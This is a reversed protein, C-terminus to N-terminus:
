FPYGVSFTLNYYNYGNPYETKLDESVTEMDKNFWVWKTGTSIEPDLAKFGLDLRLVFFSFDFRVGTGAGVAIADVFNKASLINLENASESNLTWINGADIFFAGNMYWFLHFRHEYNLEFKMDGQRYSTEYTGSNDLKRKPGITRIEWARMSNAGGGYYQKISPTVESNGYPVICGAFFRFISTNKKNIILYYRLDIEAKTYQAFRTGFMKYYGLGATDVNFTNNISSLVNGAFELKGSLYFSNNLRREKKNFYTYTYSSSSILNDQYSNRFYENKSIYNNFRDSKNKYQVGSLDIITLAHSSKKQSRWKYGYSASARPSRYDPTQVFYYGATAVTYPRYKEDFREMKFPLVFRPLELEVDAGYEQNYFFTENDTSLERNVEQSTKFRVSLAEAGHFINRHRYTLNIGAGLDGSTNTGQLNLSIQQLTFQSIQIHCDLLQRSSDTQPPSTYKITVQKFLKNESLYRKTLKTNKNNYEEGKKIKNFRLIMGKKLNDNSFLFIEGTDVTDRSLSSLYSKKNVLYEKPVFDTFIYVNNIYHKQHPVSIVSDNVVEKKMNIYVDINVLRENVFTDAVFSVDNASFDYYARNKYVDQLFSQVGSLLGKRFRKGPKLASWLTDTSMVDLATDLYHWKIKNIIFPKGTEVTYTLKIKKKKEKKKLEIESFYYGENELFKEIRQISKKALLSDYIVPPRGLKTKIWNKLKREKGGASINYFFLRNRFIGLFNKNPTQTLQGKVSASPIQRSTIKVKQKTLLM